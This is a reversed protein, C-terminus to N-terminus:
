FLRLDLVFECSCVFTKGKKEYNLVFLHDLFIFIVLKEGDVNTPTNFMTHYGRACHSVFM